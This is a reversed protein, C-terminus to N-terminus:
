SSNARSLIETKLVRTGKQRPVPANTNQTVYFRRLIMIAEERLFGGIANYAPHVPHESPANVGLVSGCGGFKDNECGYFVQKIGLQRLASACMICPEVTVYLTTDSLPYRNSPTPLEGDHHHDDNALILDVAELEAHRSANHLENTRNRAKAIAEGNRVFVCGVPVEGASLAEEAMTMAVRMWNVHVSDADSRDSGLVLHHDDAM